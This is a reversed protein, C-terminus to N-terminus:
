VSTRLPGEELTRLVKGPIGGVLSYPPVDKTVVANAGIVSDHGIRIRGLVAAGAGVIVREEIIPIETVPDGHGALGLTVNHRIQVDDGIARAGLVSGGHHWLHVRRGVKVIYPLEIRCTWHVWRYLIAYLLTLPMRLLRPRVGMRWNGFRNVTIAWLGQAFLSEHTLWDERFLAWLGMGPPNQNATGTMPFEAPDARPVAPDQPSSM